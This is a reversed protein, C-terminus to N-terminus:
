HFLIVMPSAQFSALQITFATPIGLGFHNTCSILIHMRRLYGISKQTMM